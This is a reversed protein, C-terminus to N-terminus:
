LSETVQLFCQVKGRKIMTHKEEQQLRKSAIDYAEKMQQQWKQAYEENDDIPLRPKRGFLLYFPSYGTAERTTCNYAHVVKGVYDSWNGKKEEDLTRLM